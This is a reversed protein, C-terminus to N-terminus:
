TPARSSAWSATGTTWWACTACAWRASSATRARWPRPSQARPADIVYPATSIYPRIDLWSQRDDNAITIEQITPYRPYDKELTEFTVPREGRSYGRNPSFHRRQLLVCLCKRLVTGMLVNGSQTDVVPFCDHETNRLADYVYGVREIPRLCKVTTTMIQGATVEGKAALAPLEDELFPLRKLRIHIDYLGENFVNGTWRAAMLTLMLPLVYQMDGTAELLIVTLSITMRAMGGLAAAAGILAYTGSDAFLAGNGGALKHLLHGCLRGLAAGSLLSPVFLGSPVAIGYTICAMATYPLWFLFLAGSSFTFNNTTSREGGERFHFLQRIATDADTFFLSAVENYETHPDCNFSVLEDVMRKEQSTWNEMDVPKPSCRGWLLPMVFAVVSMLGAVSVAELFRRRKHKSVHRQRWLTLKENWHNFCAGVLGGMCGLLVFLSLEWVSYNGHGMTLEGFEGFSFMKALDQQGWLNESSKVVYLTFVTVMACFFARWTLRTSWFSAGEELSFLVGGIPAGFAAAVGAAAGSAVFDRKERDNRFEQFQSSSSDSCCADGQSITAAIVAGSHVMPGEKGAPLGGAVAFMIGVVKCVLAKPKVVGLLNIGNLFCKIDPIGSGACLPEIVVMANAIAVYAVNFACFACLARVGPGGEREMVGRVAGFKLRTLAGTSLTVLMATLGTCAGIGLTVLWRLLSVRRGVTWWAGREARARRARHARWVDSEDPEYDHSDPVAKSSMAAAAAFAPLGGSGESLNRSRKRTSGGSGMVSSNSANNVVSGLSSRDGGGGAGASHGSGYSFERELSAAAGGDGSAAGESGAAGNGYTRSDNLQRYRNSDSLSPFKNLM